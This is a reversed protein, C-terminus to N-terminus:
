KLERNIRRSLENDKKRIVESFNLKNQSAVATVKFIDQRASAMEISSSSAISISESPCSPLYREESLELDDKVEMM